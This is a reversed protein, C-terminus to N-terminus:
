KGPLFDIALKKLSKSVCAKGVPHTCVAVIGDILAREVLNNTLKRITFVVSEAGKSLFVENSAFKWDLEVAIECGCASKCKGAIQAMSKLGLDKAIEVSVGLIWQLKILDIPKATSLNRLSIEIVIEGEGSTSSPHYHYKYPAKTGEVFLINFTIKSVKSHLTAKGIHHLAMETVVKVIGNLHITQLSNTLTSRDKFSLKLFQWSRIFDTPVSIQFSSKGIVTAIAKRATEKTELIARRLSDSEFAPVAKSALEAWDRNWKSLNGEFILEGDDFLQNRWHVQEAPGLKDEITNTPDYRIVIRRLSKSFTSRVEPKSAEYLSVLGETKEANLLRQFHTIVLKEVMSRRTEITEKLFNAHTAWRWDVEIFVDVGVKKKFTAEWGTIKTKYSDVAKLVTLHFTDEIKEDIGTVQKEFSDLNITISLTGNHYFLECFTCESIKSKVGNSADYTVVVKKLRSGLAKGITPSAKAADGLGNTSILIKKASAILKEVGSAQKEATLAAFNPHSTFSFDFHVPIKNGLYTALANEISTKQTDTAGLAKLFVLNFINEFEKEFGAPPSKWSSLNVVVKLTGDEFKLNFDKTTPTTVKDEPDYTLEVKTIKELVVGKTVKSKECLGILGEDGTVFKSMLSFALSSVMKKQDDECHKTFASHSSFAWTVTLVVRKGLAEKLTDEKRLVEKMIGAAYSLESPFHRDASTAEITPHGLHASASSNADNTEVTPEPVPWQYVYKYTAAAAAAAELDESSSTDGSSSVAVPPARAPKGFLNDYLKLAAEVRSIINEGETAYTFRARFDELWQVLLHYTRLLTMTYEELAKKDEKPKGKKIQDTFKELHWEVGNELLSRDTIAQQLQQALQAGGVAKTYLRLAEEVEQITPQAEEYEVFQSKFEGLWQIL